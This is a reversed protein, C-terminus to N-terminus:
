RRLGYPPASRSEPGVRSTPHRRVITGEFATVHCGRGLVIERARVFAVDVGELEVSEAEVRAITVTVRRALVKDVLNPTHAGLRVTRGEVPGIRSGDRLRLDVSAGRVPGSVEIVGDLRVDQAAVSAARLWGTVDIRRDVTIAGAVQLRGRRTLDGARLTAGARLEGRGSIPGESQLPGSVELLGDSALRGARFAGGVSVTGQLDAEGVDVDRAVKVTGRVSWREARVMEHRAVGRETVSPERPAPVSAISTASM